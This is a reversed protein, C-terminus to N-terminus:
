KKQKRKRIYKKYFKSHGYSMGDGTITKMNYDSGFTQNNTLVKEGPNWREIITGLTDVWAPREGYDIIQNVTCFCKVCVLQKGSHKGYKFTAIAPSTFVYSGSVSVTDAEVATFIHKCDNKQWSLLFIGTIIILTILKKM